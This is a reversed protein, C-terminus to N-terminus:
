IIEKELIDAVWKLGLKELIKRTPVGSEVNWGSQRFYEERATEFEARDIKLGDTPGGSLARKFFKEPLKDQSSDIGERANFARMMNLRREGVTLLEDITVDWGTVTKVLTVIEAPGYLHWTPGHVFQCLNLSDIMSYIQQTKCIFNIKERNLSRPPQPDSLGLMQLRERYYKFAKGYASDHESSMHDAGFPNVAYILSLSKKVHPMHAPAEQGKCTILFESGRGLKQSALASGGSLIAGFGERRGIMETLQVMAEANGFKLEMGDTDEKTLVGNEFAEMAWAITAGCSITDMGYKNCLENAKAIAPLDGIGCYSGFAALTEFEPGGYVADVRYPGDKIEVINKCRVVCAFCTAKGYKQQKGEGAGKQISKYMTTGNIKEWQDFVGSNFNFSPLGGGAHLGGIATTTGYKGMAAVSSTPLANAGSRALDNFGQKDALVPRQRGRVAIAKLKKSGMVAGLGTRGNARNSSSMIAAFRVMKEGAPGITLTKIKTDDLEEKICRETDATFKGWLHEASKIEAKGDHLWLYVPSPSKGKIIIADFGSFKLEVPFFGGSQSDGIAGTLPSKATATVRSQGSIPTGTTVGASIALINEPEFPDTGAPMGKLLYYLNLASGGMYKRYFEPSPNEISITTSSLDVHLINGTYGNPM